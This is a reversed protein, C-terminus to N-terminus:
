LRFGPRSKQRGSRSRRQFPSREFGTWIFRQRDRICMEMKRMGEFSIQYAGAVAEIYNEREIELEFGAIKEAAAQFFRTKSEPDKMDYSKEIISLEFMFSNQAHDIREQFAETGLAKIFEDPDKYPEMHLVRTAIGATKLLPIARLAAKM